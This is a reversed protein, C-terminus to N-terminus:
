ANSPHRWCADDKHSVWALWFDFSQGDSPPGPALNSHLFNCDYCSRGPSDSAGDRDPKRVVTKRDYNVKDAICAFGFLRYIFDSRVSMLVNGDL